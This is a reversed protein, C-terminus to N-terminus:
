RPPLPARAPGSDPSPAAKTRAGLHPRPGWVSVQLHSRRRQRLAAARHAWGRARIRHRRQDPLGGHQQLVGRGSMFVRAPRGAAAAAAGAAARAAASAAAVSSGRAPGAPAPAAAAAPRAWPAAREERGEGPLGGGGGRAACLAGGLAAWCRRHACAWPQRCHCLPGLLRPPLPTQAALPPPASGPRSVGGGGSRM